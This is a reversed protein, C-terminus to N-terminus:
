VWVEKLWKYFSSELNLKTLKRISYSAKPSTHTAAFLDLRPSGEPTHAESTHSQLVIHKEQDPSTPLYGTGREEGTFMQLYVRAMYTCICVDIDTRTRSNSLSPTYSQEQDPSTPM